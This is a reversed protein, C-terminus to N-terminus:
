KNVWDKFLMMMYLPVNVAAIITLMQFTRLLRHVIIKTKSKGARHRLRTDYGIDASMDINMSVETEQQINRKPRMVANGREISSGGSQQSKPTERPKKVLHMSGEADFMMEYECDDDENKEKTAQTFMSCWQKICARLGCFCPEFNVGSTPWFLLALITLCFLSIYWIYIHTQMPLFCLQTMVAEEPTSVNANESDIASLLMFSPYLNGQQWSITGLTLEPVPKHRAEHTVACQDHDHGSLVLIPRILNLLGVSSEESVYNQYRVEQSQASRLIRQNIIPSCRHPGCYSNDQRFLPIHTLLVRPISQTDSSVNKIFDWTVSSFTGQRNGDLTQADIAVFEVKGVTFRYNRVGFEKEYRQMIQPLHSYVSEYGIDHNGPIFYVPIDAIKGGSDLGFSHRFRELSEKWEEDNLYPGGDFYDGLFVIVDPKFPLISAFFARRMYLDTYFQVLELSLSKPPLPLSTKDMLQPDALVAVKVYKNSHMFGNEKSSPLLHPWSCSYLSPLWYAFMEGYLLSFIWVGCLVLTLKYAQKM